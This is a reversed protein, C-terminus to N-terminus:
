APVALLDDLRARDADVALRDGPEARAPGLVVDDGPLPAPERGHAPGDVEREVLRGAGQAGVVIGLAIAILVQVYLLKLYRM